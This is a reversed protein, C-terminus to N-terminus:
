AVTMAGANAPLALPRAADARRPRSVRRQLTRALGSTFDDSGLVSGTHTARRISEAFRPLLGATCFARYEAARDLRTRGLALYEDHLTILPDHDSRGLCAYSSWEYSDPSRALGARVPNLDIYRSCALFYRSSEVLSSKFRGEWLTGSRRHRANFHRVYLRGVSQMLRSAGHPTAPTVLLHVHNSMLAYAHIACRERQSSYLLFVRYQAYDTADIFTATRNNGRQTIHLPLGPITIRPWRAM